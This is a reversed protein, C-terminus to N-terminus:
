LIYAMEINFGVLEPPEQANFYSLPYNQAEYCVRLTKRKQIQGLHSQEPNPLVSPPTTLIKVAQSSNQLRLLQM